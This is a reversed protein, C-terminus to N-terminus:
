GAGGLGAFVEGFVSDFGDLFIQRAAKRAKDTEPRAAMPRQSTEEFLICQAADKGSRGEPLRVEKGRYTFILADGEERVFAWGDRVSISALLAIQINPYRDAMSERLRTADRLLRQLDLRLDESYLLRTLRGPDKIEMASRKYECRQLVEAGVEVPSRLDQLSHIFLTLEDPQLINFPPRRAFGYVAQRLAFETDNGGQQLERVTSRFLSAVRQRNVRRLYVLAAVLLVALAPALVYVM